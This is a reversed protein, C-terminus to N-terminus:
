IERKLIKKMLIHKMLRNVKHANFYIFYHGVLLILYNKMTAKVKRLKMELPFEERFDTFPKMLFHPVNQCIDGIESYHNDEDENKSYKENKNHCNEKKNKRTQELMDELTQKRKNCINQSNKTDMKKLIESWEIGEEKKM